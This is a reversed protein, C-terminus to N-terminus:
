LIGVGSLVAILVISIVAAVACPITVYKLGQKTNLNFFQSMVWFGSNNVHNFTLTGAGIALAAALPTIGLGPIMPLVIAAATMGATTM